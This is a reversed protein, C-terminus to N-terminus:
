FQTLITCLLSPTKLKGQPYVLDGMSRVDRAEASNGLDTNRVWAIMEVRSGMGKLTVYQDEEFEITDLLSIGVSYEILEAGYFSGRTQEIAPIDVIMLNSADESGQQSFLKANIGLRAEKDHFDRGACTMDFLREAETKDKCGHTETSCVQCYHQTSPTDCDPLITAANGSVSVKLLTKGTTVGGNDDVVNCASCQEGQVFKIRNLGIAHAQAACEQIDNQGTLVTATGLCDTKGTQEVKFVMAIKEEMEGNNCLNGENTHNVKTEIPGCVQKSDISINAATDFSPSARALAGATTIDLGQGDGDCTGADALREAPWRGDKFLQIQFHSSHVQEKTRDLCDSFLEVLYRSYIKADGEDEMYNQALDTLPNLSNTAIGLYSITTLSDDIFAKGGNVGAAEDSGIDRVVYKDIIQVLENFEQQGQINGPPVREYTQTPNKSYGVTRFGDEYRQKRTKDDADTVNERADDVDDGTLKHQGVTEISECVDCEDTGEILGTPLGRPLIAANTIGEDFLDLQNLVDVYFALRVRDYKSRGSSTGMNACSLRSDEFHMQEILQSHNNPNLVSAVYGFSLDTITWEFVLVKECNARISPDIWEAGDAMCFTDNLALLAGNKVCVNGKVLSNDSKKYCKGGDTQQHGKFDFWTHGVMSECATKDGYVSTVDTESSDEVCKAAVSFDLSGYPRDESLGAKRPIQKHSLCVGGDSMDQQKATHHGTETRCWDPNAAPLIRVIEEAEQVNFAATTGEAIPQEERIDIDSCDEETIEIKYAYEKIYKGTVDSPYGQYIVTDPNKGFKSVTISSRCFRTGWRKYMNEDVGMGFNGDIGDDPSDPYQRTKLIRFGSGDPMETTCDELSSTSFSLMMKDHYYTKTNQGDSVTGIPETSRGMEKVFRQGKAFGSRYGDATIPNFFSKRLSPYLFNDSVDDNRCRKFQENYPINDSGREDDLVAIDYLDPDDTGCVSNDSAEDAAGFFKDIFETRVDTMNRFDVITTDEVTHCRHKDVVGNVGVMLPFWEASEPKSTKVESLPVDDGSLALTDFFAMLAAANAINSAEENSGEQLSSLVIKDKMLRGISYINMSVVENATSLENVAMSASVPEQMEYSFQIAQKSYGNELERIGDPLGVSDRKHIKYLTADAQAVTTSNEVALICEKKDKVQWTQDWKRECKLRDDFDLGVLPDGQADECVSYTDQYSFSAASANKAAVECAMASEVTRKDGDEIKTNVSVITVDPECTFKTTGNVQWEIIEQEDAFKANRPFDCYYAQETSPCPALPYLERDLKNLPGISDGDYNCQKAQGIKSFTAHAMKQDFNLNKTETRDIRPTSHCMSDTEDCLDVMGDEANCMKLENLGNGYVREKCAELDGARCPGQKTVVYDSSHTCDKSETNYSYYTSSGATTECALVSDEQTVTKSASTIKGLSIIHGRLKMSYSRAPNLNGKYLKNYQNLAKCGTESDTRMYVIVTASTAQQQLYTGQTTAIRCAGDATDYDYFDKEATQAKAHCAALSTENSEVVGQADIGLKHQLALQKRPYDEAEGAPNHCAGVCWKHSPNEECFPHVLHEPETKSVKYASTAEACDCSFSLKLQCKIRKQDPTLTPLWSFHNASALQRRTASAYTTFSLVFLLM